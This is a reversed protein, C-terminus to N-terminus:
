RSCHPDGLAREISNAAAEETADYPGPATGQWTVDPTVGPGVITARYRLGAGAPRSGHPYFGYCFSGRPGHTLFSNERRWGTGYASGFTDVYVNRGFSDLPVGSPTAHFGYVGSGRYTLTGFAAQAASPRAGLDPLDRQWAQLAWYSGDPAKCAAVSWALAPGDYPLCVWGAADWYRGLHYKGYGGSYDLRFAVQAADVAPAIANEAGWALVHEVRGAKEYTIMAEGNADVSLSVASANRDVLQSAHASAAGVFAIAVVAISLVSGHVPCQRVLSM